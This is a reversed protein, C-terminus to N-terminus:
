WRRRASEPYLEVLWNAACIRTIANGEPSELVQALAGADERVWDIGSVKWTNQSDALKRLQVILRYRETTRRDTVVLDPLVIQVRERLSPDALTVGQDLTLRFRHTQRAPLKGFGARPDEPDASFQPRDAQNSVVQSKDGDLLLDVSETQTRNGRRMMYWGSPQHVQFNNSLGYPDGLDMPMLHVREQTRPDMGRFLVVGEYLSLDANAEFLFFDKGLELDWPTGNVLSLDIQWRLCSWPRNGELTEQHTGHTATGTVHVDRELVQRIQHRPPTPGQIRTPIAWRSGPLRSFM